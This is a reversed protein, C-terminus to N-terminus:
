DKKYHVWEKIEKHEKIYELIEGVYEAASVKFVVTRIAAGVYVTIAIKYTYKEVEVIEKAIPDLYQVVETEREILVRSVEVNDSKVIGELTLYEDICLNFGNM